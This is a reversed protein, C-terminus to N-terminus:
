GWPFLPVFPAMPSVKGFSFSSRCISLPFLSIISISSICFHVSEGSLLYGSNCHSSVLWSIKCGIWDVTFIYNSSPVHNEKFPAWITWFWVVKIRLCFDPFQGNSLTLTESTHVRSVIFDMREWRLDPTWKKLRLEEFVKEKVVLAWYCM